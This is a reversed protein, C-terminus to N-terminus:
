RGRGFGWIDQGDWLLVADGWERDQGSFDGSTGLSWLWGEEKDKWFPKAPYM